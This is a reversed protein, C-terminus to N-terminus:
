RPLTDRMSAALDRLSPDQASQAAQDFAVRAEGRKGARLLVAGLAFRARAFGPALALAQRLDREADDLRGLKIETLALDYRATAYQPDAALLAGFDHLATAGDGSRLATLGREYLGRASAPSRALLEDAARRASTLDNRMLFVAILNVRAAMFDRDLAIAAAFSGAAADLKGLHAQALGLDYRATSGQPEKPDLTLVRTFEAAARNWEGRLEERFGLEIRERIERARAAEALRVPDTTRPQPQIQPYSQANAAVPALMALLALAALLRAV